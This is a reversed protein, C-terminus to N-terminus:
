ADTESQMDIQSAAATAKLLSSLQRLGTERAMVSLEELMEVIYSQASESPVSINDQTIKVQKM